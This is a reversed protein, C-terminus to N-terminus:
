LSTHKTESKIFKWFFENFNELISYILEKIQTFGVVAVAQSSNFTNADLVAFYSVNMAVYIIAIGTMGFILAMPM